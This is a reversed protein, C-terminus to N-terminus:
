EGYIDKLDFADIDLGDLNGFGSRSFFGIKYPKLGTDSVQKIENLIEDKNVSNKWFKAEYLAYGKRDETVVDFEGNRHESPLEYWYKGIREFPEALRGEKNQRILYQRCIVEFRKPVYKSEFDDSIYRDFFAEPDMVNMQSPYRFVYRYYFLFMNDSIFYGAKKKNGEDNIPVERVVVEMRILKDLVDALTPGSSVNSQSLIDSFKSFGSALAEFVENVNVIKSIESRLYMVVENELRAGPSAILDIINEKVTKSSDILRNYYPIGGFVSFLRVKDDNSFSPYFLASDLYDMPKLNITLDIRGFLPNGNALLSMMADVYSGSLILKMNSSDKYKDILSQIISDLGKVVDRLYSYEDLAVILKEKVATRFLFELTEEISSFALKPYGLIESILASLSQVNNPETTQKCEYYISRIGSKRISQKILESKGIRRRGYVLVTRQEDSKYSALLNRIEDARGLFEM